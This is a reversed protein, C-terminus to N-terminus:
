VMPTRETPETRDKQGRSSGLSFTPVKIGQWGTLFEKKLETPDASGDEDNYFKAIAKRVIRAREPDLDKLMRKKVTIADRLMLLEKLGALPVLIKRFIKDAGQFMPLMLYVTTVIILTYFGPIWGLWVELVEMILFLCGYCCWYTLWYTDDEVDETSAASISSLLPYVTGIAVAITRQLAKPLFLFIIWLFWLHAANIMTQYLATILNTMEAALPRVKPAIYPATITDYLLRAGDTPPFYLWLFLFFMAEYYLLVLSPTTIVNDVWETMMFLVGGVMWYQLWAKDDDEEPTCVAHLSEYIPFVTGVLTITLSTFVCGIAATVPAIAILYSLLLISVVCAGYVAHPLVARGRTRTMRGGYHYAATVAGLVTLSCLVTIWFNPAGATGAEGAAATHGM